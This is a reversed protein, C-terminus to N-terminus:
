VGGEGPQYHYIRDRGDWFWEDVYQSYVSALIAATFIVYPLRM